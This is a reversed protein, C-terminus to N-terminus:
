TEDEYIEKLFCAKGDSDILKSMDTEKPDYTGPKLLNARVDMPLQGRVFVHVMVEDLLRLILKGSAEDKWEMEVTTADIVTVSDMDETDEFYVRKEIGFHTIFVVAFNQGLEIVIAKLHIPKEALKEFRKVFLCFFLMSSADQAARADEKKVNCHKAIDTVQTASALDDTRKNQIVAFLLRHVIIDAYRRIPSTFHTYMEVNLAYHRWKGKFGEVPSEGTCFYKARQMTRVLASYLLTQMKPDKVNDMSTQLDLSSGSAIPQGLNQALQSFWDMKKKNPPPHCRLLSMEPFNSSIEKAVSMNALLMFEEILRNTDRMEYISCSIPEGKDDLRFSLKSRNLTLAGNDFRKKRLSKSIKYFVGLNALITPVPQEPTFDPYINGWEVGDILKQAIEYSMKVCSRIVTKGFWTKKITGEDDMVWVVSFALRDVNPNLSCLNESLVSPLMTIAKQVLYTTTARTRAEEDLKTGHKVFHSVDAIHVGVEYLGDGLPACSIADDLDRATEPDITYICDKRMDRRSLLESEPIEWSDPPLCNLVKHSFEQDRIGNAEIITKSEVDVQGAEGMRKMIRGVPYRHSEQWKVFSCLFITHKYKDPNEAFDPPCERLQISMLPVSKETPKFFLEKPLPKRSRKSSISAAIENSITDSSEWGPGSAMLVGAFVHGPRREKIAVVIGVPQIVAGDDDDDNSNEANEKFGDEFDAPPSMLNRVKSEKFRKSGSKFDELDKLACHGIVRVLVTDGDLARNQDTKGYVIIDETFKDSGLFAFDRKRKNIRLQGEVLDEKDWESEALYPDFFPRRVRRSKQVDNKQWSDQKKPFRAASTSPETTATDGVQSDDEAEAKSKGNKPKKIRIRKKKEIVVTTSSSPDTNHSQSAVVAHANDADALVIPMASDDEAEVKSNGKKLKKIRIRKKKEIAFTGANGPGPVKPATNINLNEQLASTITGVADEAKVPKKKRWRPKKDKKAIQADSAPVASSSTTPETVPPTLSRKNNRDM